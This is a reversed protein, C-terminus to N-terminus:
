DAGDRDSDSVRHPYPGRAGRGLHFWDTLKTCNIGLINGLFSFAAREKDCAYGVLTSLSPLLHISMFQWPFANWFYFESNTLAVRQETILRIHLSTPAIVKWDIVSLSCWCFVHSTACVAPLNRVVHTPLTWSEVAFCSLSAIVSILPIKIVSQHSYWVFRWFPFQSTERNNKLPKNTCLYDISLTANM